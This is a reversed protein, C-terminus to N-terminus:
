LFESKIMRKRKKRFLLKLYLRLLFNVKLTIKDWFSLKENENQKKLKFKELAEKKADRVLTKM